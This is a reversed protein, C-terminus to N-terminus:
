VFNAMFPPAASTRGVSPRGQQGSFVNVPQSVSTTAGIDKAHDKAATLMSTGVGIMGTAVGQSVARASWGVLLRATSAILHAVFRVLGSFLRQLWSVIMM